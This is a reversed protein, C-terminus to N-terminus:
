RDHGGGPDTTGTVALARLRSRAPAFEPNAELCAAYARLARERRGDAEAVLGLERQVVLSDRFPNLFLVGAVLIILALLNFTVIKRALPSRNHFRRNQAAMPMM